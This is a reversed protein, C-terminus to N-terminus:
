ELLEPVDQATLYHAAAVIEEDSKASASISLPSTALIVTLAVFIAKARLPREEQFRSVNLIM